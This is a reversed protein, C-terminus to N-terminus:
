RYFLALRRLIAFISNQLRTRAEHEDKKGAVDKSIDLTETISFKKYNKFMSNKREPISRNKGIIWKVGKNCYNDYSSNFLHKDKEM